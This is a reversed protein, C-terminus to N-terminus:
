IHEMIKNIVIGVILGIASTVLYWVSHILASENYYIFVSPIFLISAIFPYIYKIKKNSFIGIILSLILTSLLIIIIMGMTDTPGSFIPFVYFIFLQILLIIIERSLNKM